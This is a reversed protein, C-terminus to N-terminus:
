EINLKNKSKNRQIRSWKINSFPYGLQTEFYGMHQGLAGWVPTCQSEKKQSM